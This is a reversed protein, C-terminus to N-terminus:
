FKEGVRAGAIKFTRVHPASEYGRHTFAIFVAIRDGQPNPLYGAVGAAIPLYEEWTNTLILKSKGVNNSITTELSLLGRHGFEPDQAYKRALTVEYSDGRYKGMLAPFPALAFAYEQIQFPQILSEVTAGHAAWFESIGGEDLHLIEFDLRLKDNVLDIVQVKWQREDAAENPHAILLALQEGSKSWGLPFIEEDLGQFVEKTPFIQLEEPQNAPAIAPALLISAIILLTASRFKTTPQM